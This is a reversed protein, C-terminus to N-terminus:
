GIGFHRGTRLTEKVDVRQASTQQPKIDNRQLEKRDALLTEATNHEADMGEMPRINMQQAVNNLLTSIEKNSLRDLAAPIIQRPQMPPKQNKSLAANYQKDYTEINKDSIARMKAVDAETYQKMPDLNFNYRFENLSALVESKQMQPFYLDGSQQQMKSIQAAQDKTIGLLAGFAMSQPTGLADTNRGVQASNIFVAPDNSKEIRGGLREYGELTEQIERMFSSGPKLDNSSIGTVKGTQVDKRILEVTHKGEYIRLKNVEDILKAAEQQTILAKGQPNKMGTRKSVWEKLWEFSARMQNEYDKPLADGKNSTIFTPM